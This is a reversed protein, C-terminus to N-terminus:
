WVDGKRKQALLEASPEDDDEGRFGEFPDEPLPKKRKSVRVGKKKAEKELHALMDKLHQVKDSM